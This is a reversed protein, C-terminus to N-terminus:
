SLFRVSALDCTIDCSLALYGILVGVTGKSTFGWQVTAIQAYLKSGIRDVRHRTELIHM